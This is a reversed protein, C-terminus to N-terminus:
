QSKRFKVKVTAWSVYEVVESGKGLIWVSCNISQYCGKVSANRKGYSDKEAAIFVCQSLYM